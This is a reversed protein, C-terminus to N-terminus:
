AFWNFVAVLCVSFCSLSKGYTALVPFVSIYNNIMIFFIIACLKKIPCGYDFLFRFFVEITFFKDSIVHNFIVHNFIVHDTENYNLLYSPLTVYVDVGDNWGESGLCSVERVCASSSYHLCLNLLHVSKYMVSEIVGPCENIVQWCLLIVVFILM